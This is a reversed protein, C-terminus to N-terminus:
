PWGTLALEGWIGAVQQRAAEILRLASTEALDHDAEGLLAQALVSAAANLRGDIENLRGPLDTV